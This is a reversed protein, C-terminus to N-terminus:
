LSFLKKRSHYAEICYPVSFLFIWMYITNAYYLGFYTETIGIFMTYLLYAMLMKCLLHYESNWFKIVFNITKYIVAGFAIFGWYGYDFLISFVVNHPHLTDEYDGPVFQYYVSSWGSAYHGYVGYGFIHELKISQIFELLSYAWIITRGNLTSFDSDSRSLTNISPVNTSIFLLIGSIVFPAILVVLPLIKLWKINIIKKDFLMVLIFIVIPMLIGSRSDTLIMVFLCLAIIALSLKKTNGNLHKYMTLCIVAVGATYVAFSNVGGRTFPFTTRSFNIGILQSFISQHDSAEMEVNHGQVGLLLAVVNLMLFFGIPIISLYFLKKAIGGPSSSQYIVRNINLLTLLTFLILSISQNVKYLMSHHPHNERLLGVSLLFILFYFTFGIRQPLKKAWRHQIPIVLLLLLTPLLRGVISDTLANIGLLLIVYVFQYKIM